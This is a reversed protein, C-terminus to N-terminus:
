PPLQAVDPDGARDLWQLNVVNGAVAVCDVPCLTFAYILVIADTM